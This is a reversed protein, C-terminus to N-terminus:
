SPRSRTARSGARAPYAVPASAAPARGAPARAAPAPVKGGGGLQYGDSGSGPTPDDGPEPEGPSREDAMTSRDCAAATIYMGGYAPRHRRRDGLASGASSALWRPRLGPLETRTADVMDDRTRSASILSRGSLTSRSSSRTLSRPVPPIAIKTPTTRSVSEPSLDGGEVVGLVRRGAGGQQGARLPDRRGVLDAGDRHRVPDPVELHTIQRDHDGGAGHVPSRGQLRAPRQDVVELLRHRDPLFLM